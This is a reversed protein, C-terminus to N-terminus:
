NERQKDGLFKEGEKKEREGFTQIEEVLVNKQDGFSLQGLLSSCAYYHM